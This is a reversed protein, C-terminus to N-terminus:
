DNYDIKKSQNHKQLEKDWVISSTIIADSFRSIQLEFKSILEDDTWGNRALEEILQEFSAYMRKEEIFESYLLSGEFNNDLYEKFDNIIEDRRKYLHKTREYDSKKRVDSYYYTMGFEEILKSWFVIASKYEMPLLPNDINDYSKGKIKKRYEKRFNDENLHLEMMSQIKSLRNEHSQENDKIVQLINNFSNNFTREQENIIRETETQQDKLIKIKIDLTENINKDMKTERKKLYWNLLMGGFTLIIPNLLVMVTKLVDLWNSQPKLEAIKEAVLQAIFLTDPSPEM